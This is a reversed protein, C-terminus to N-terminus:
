LADFAMKRESNRPLIRGTCGYAGPAARTRRMCHRPRRGASLLTITHRGFRQCVQTFEAVYVQRACQHAAQAAAGKGQAFGAGGGPFVRGAARQAIKGLVRQVRERLAAQHHQVIDVSVGARSKGGVRKEGRLPAHRQRQAARFAARARRREHVPRVIEGRGKASGHLVLVNVAQDVTEWRAREGDCPVGFAPVVRKVRQGHGFVWLRAGDGEIPLAEAAVLEVARM